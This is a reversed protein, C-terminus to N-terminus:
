YKFQDYFSTSEILEILETKRLISYRSFCLYKCLQKLDPLLWKSLNRHNYDWHIKKGSDKVEILTYNFYDGNIKIDTIQYRCPSKQELKIESFSTELSLVDNETNILAILENKRLSSYGKLGMSKAIAKLQTVTNSENM